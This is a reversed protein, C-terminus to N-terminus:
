RGSAARQQAWQQDITAANIEVVGTSTIRHWLGNRRYGDPETLLIGSRGYLPASVRGLQAERLTATLADAGLAALQQTLTADLDAATEPQPATTLQWLSAPFEIGALDRNYRPEGSYIHSTALVPIEAAFNFELAPRIQRGQQPQALVIVLDIDQRRRPRTSLELGTLRQLQLSRQRSEDLALPAQLLPTFDREASAYYVVEIVGGRQEWRSQLWRAGRAGWGADPALLLVRQANRAAARQLLQDLEHEVALPLKILESHAASQAASRSSENLVLTPLLADALPTAARRQRPAPLENLLESIAATNGEPPAQERELEDLLQDLQSRRLPGIVRTVGQGRLQRYLDSFASDNDLHYFQLQPLTQGRSLQYYRALLGDTLARSAPTSAADRSLVVAVSATSAQAGQLAILYDPRLQALPHRSHANLWETLTRQQASYDGERARLQLALQALQRLATSVGDFQELQASSTANLRNWILNAREATLSDVDDLLLQLGDGLAGIAFLYQAELLDLQRQEAGALQSRWLGWQPHRRLASAPLWYHQDLGGRFLLLLLQSRRRDDLLAPDLTALMQLTQRATAAASGATAALSTYQQQIIDFLELTQERSRAPLAAM